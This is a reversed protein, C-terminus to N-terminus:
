AGKYVLSLIILPRNSCIQVSGQKVCLDFVYIGYTLDLQLEWKFRMSEVDRKKM